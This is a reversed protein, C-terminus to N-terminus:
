QKFVAEEIYYDLGRVKWSLQIRWVGKEMNALPFVQRGRADPKLPSEQDRRHDSSRYFRVLGHVPLWQSSDPFQIVCADAGADYVITPKVALAASRRLVDIREQYRLDKEYYDDTVLNKDSRSAFLALSIFAIPFLIVVIIVGLAWRNIRTKM